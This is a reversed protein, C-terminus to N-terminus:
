GVFAGFAHGDHRGAVDNTKEGVAEVFRQDDVRAGNARGAGRRGGTCLTNNNFIHLIFQLTSRATTAGNGKGRSKHVMAGATPNCSTPGRHVPKLTTRFVVAAYTDRSLAM